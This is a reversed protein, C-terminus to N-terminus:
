GKVSKGIGKLIGRGILGIGRGIVETLVYVVGSGLFAIAGKLRPSIADRTELALTVALQLGSLDELEEARPSYITMRQIGYDSFVFLRYQSEFIAKPERFLREVRFRWSLDNRFREIERTSLLRRDYFRQKVVELNAFRNLLPQVVANALQITLNELIDIARNLAEPSGSEYLTQDITLPRQFLIHSLVDEVLPIRDLIDTQVLNVEDLIASVIEMERQKLRVTSYRGFFETVVAEWLDRLVDSRKAELQDPLVQSYKLEELVHEIQRLITYFLERKKEQKLIDIELPTNTFNELNSQLKSAIRDFIVAQLEAPRPEESVIEAQSSPVIATTASSFEQTPISQRVPRIDQPSLVHQVLWRAAKLERRRGTLFVKDLVSLSTSRLERNIQDLAADIQRLGSLRWNQRVVALVSIAEPQTSALTLQQLIEPRWYSQGAAVQRIAAVFEAIASGKPCYGDIGSQFAVLLEADTLREILLIPLTPFQTKVQQVFTLGTGALLVNFPDLNMDRDVLSRWADTVSDAEVVVHLDPFRNLCNLLGSRFVPDLEVIMIRVSTPATM